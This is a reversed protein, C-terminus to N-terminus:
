GSSDIEIVRWQDDCIDIYTRGDVHAKRIFVQEMEGDFLAMGQLVGLAEQMANSSIAQAQDLYYLRGLWLRFTRGKLSCTEFHNDVRITDFPEREPTHFLEVGSQGALNILRTSQKQKEEGDDAEIAANAKRAEEDTSESRLRDENTM